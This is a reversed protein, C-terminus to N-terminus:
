PSPALKSPSSKEPLEKAEGGLSIKNFGRGIEVHGLEGGQKLLRRLHEGGITPAPEVEKNEIMPPVETERENLESDKRLSPNTKLILQRSWKEAAKKIEFKRLTIEKPYFDSRPFQWETLSLSKLNGSYAPLNNITKMDLSKTQFAKNFGGFFKVDFQKSYDVLPLGSHDGHMVHTEAFSLTDLFGIYGMILWFLNWIQLNLNM